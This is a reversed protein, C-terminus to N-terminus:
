RHAEPSPNRAVAELMWYMLKPELYGRRTIIEKGTADFIVTAPRGFKAYRRGLEPVADEDARVPLYAREITAVVQPDSYTTADMKRCFQCWEATLDLLVLRGERRAQEFVAVSWSQWAIARNNPQEETAWVGATILCLFLATLLAYPTRKNMTVFANLGAAKGAKEYSDISGENPGARM